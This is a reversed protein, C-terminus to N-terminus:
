EQPCSPCIQNELNGLTQRWKILFVIALITILLLIAALVIVTIAYTSKKVFPKSQGAPSQTSQPPSYRRSQYSTM